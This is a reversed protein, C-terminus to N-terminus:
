EERETEEPRHRLMPTSERGSARIYRFIQFITAGLVAGGLGWAGNIITNAQAVTDPNHSTLYNGAMGAALFSVPMVIWFAGYARYFNNRARQVQKEEESAPFATIIDAMGRDGNLRVFQNNSQTINNDRFVFSGIEGEPTEVSIYSFADSPLTLSLPSEGVFLSGHYVASNPSGSVDVDLSSIGMPTLSISIEALEGAEVTLPFSVPIFNNARVSIEMEGPFRIQTIAGTGTFIGNISVIAEPPSAHVIIKSPADGSLEVALRNGIEDLATDFDEFSFMVFDEYSYSGTFRTFLEIELFLRGHFESLRGSLFADANQETLFRTEMGSKPPPPFVGNINRQTLKFAPKREVDPFDYHLNELEEELKLIEEEATRIDREHRWSPDGRFILLDRQNRRKALAEAAVTHARAWARDHYHTIEEEGRLRFELGRLTSALTRTITDGVAEWAPPMGSTDIATICLVWEPNLPKIEEEAQRRGFAFLEYGLFLFVFFL